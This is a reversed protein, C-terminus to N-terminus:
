RANRNRRAREEAQRSWVTLIDEVQPLTMRDVFEPTIGHEAFLAFTETWV